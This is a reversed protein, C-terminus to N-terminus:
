WRQVGEPGELSRGPALAERSRSFLQTDCVPGHAMLDFRQLGCKADLQEIALTLAQNNGLSTSFIKFHDSLRKIPDRHAGFAKHLAM